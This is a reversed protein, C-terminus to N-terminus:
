GQVLGGRIEMADGAGGIFGGFGHSLEEESDADAAGLAMVMGKFRDSLVIVVSEGGVEGADLELAFLEHDVVFDDVEISTAIYPMWGLVGVDGRGGETFRSAVDAGIVVSAFLEDLPQSAFVIGVECSGCDISDPVVQKTSPDNFGDIVEAVGVRGGT